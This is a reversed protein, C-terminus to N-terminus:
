REVLRLRSGGYDILTAGFVMFAASGVAALGTGTSLMFGAPCLVASAVLVGFVTSTAGDTDVTVNFSHVLVILVGCFAMFANFLTDDTTYKLYAVAGAWIGLAVSVGLAYGSRRELVAALRQDSRKIPRYKKVFRLRRRQLNARDSHRTGFGSVWEPLM